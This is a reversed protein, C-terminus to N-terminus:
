GSQDLEQFLTVTSKDVCLAPPSVFFSKSSAPFICCIKPPYPDTACTECAASFDGWSKTMGLSALFREKKEHACGESLNRAESPIVFIVVKKAAQSAQKV